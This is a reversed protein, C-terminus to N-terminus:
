CGNFNITEFNIIYDIIGDENIQTKNYGIDSVNIIANTNQLNINSPKLINDENLTAPIFEALRVGSLDQGSLDMDPMEIYYVIRQNSEEDIGFDANERYNLIYKLADAGQLLLFEEETIIDTKNKNNEHMEKLQRYLIKKANEDM